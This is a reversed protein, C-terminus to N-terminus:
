VQIDNEYVALIIMIGFGTLLGINQILFLSWFSATPTQDNKGDDSLELQESM